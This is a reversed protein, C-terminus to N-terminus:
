HPKIMLLVAKSNLVFPGEQKVLKDWFTRQMVILKMYYNLGKNMLKKEIRLHLNKLDTEEIFKEVICTSEPNSVIGKFRKESICQYVMKMREILM